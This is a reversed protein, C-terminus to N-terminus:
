SCRVKRLLDDCRFTRKEEDEQLGMMKIYEWIAMVLEQRTAETVDVIDDLDQSIAYREPEEHRFLNITINLNEDGSRKFTLEDFDAAAPPNSSPGSREPKKWEVSQDVGKRNPPFDVTLSKFFHSFRYKPPKDNAKAKTKAPGDEEMQDPDSTNEGDAEDDQDLDDDDDLLRAEIKVRYTPELNSSFDFTDVDIGNGQWIQDEVTNTVWVRLTKWRQPLFKWTLM